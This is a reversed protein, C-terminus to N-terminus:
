KMRSRLGQAAAAARDVRLLFRDPLLARPESRWFFFRCSCFTIVAFLGADALRAAAAGERWGIIEICTRRQRLISLLRFLSLLVDEVTRFSFIQFVDLDRLCNVFFRRVLEM